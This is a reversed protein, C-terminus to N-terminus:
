KPLSFAAAAHREVANLQILELLISDGSSEANLRSRAEYRSMLVVVDDEALASGRPGYRDNELLFAGLNVLM